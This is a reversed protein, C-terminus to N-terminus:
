LLNVIPGVEVDESWRPMDDELTRSDEASLMTAMNLCEYGWSVAVVVVCLWVPVILAWEKDPYYTAGLAHLLEDPVYAWALHIFHAARSTVWGVFGYVEM